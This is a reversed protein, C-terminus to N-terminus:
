HLVNFALIADFTEDKFREDFISTQMYKINAISNEEAQQTAFALM